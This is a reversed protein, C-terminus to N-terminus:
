IHKSSLIINRAHPYPVPFSTYNKSNSIISSYTAGCICSIGPILATSDMGLWIRSDVPRQHVSGLVAIFEKFPSVLM